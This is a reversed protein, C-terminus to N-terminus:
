APYGAPRHKRILSRTGGSSSWLIDPRRPNVHRAPALRLVDLGCPEVPLEPRAAHDRALGLAKRPARQGDRADLRGAQPDILGAEGADLHRKLVYDLRSLRAGFESLAHEDAPREAAEDADQQSTLEFSQESGRDRADGAPSLLRPLRVASTRVLMLCTASSASRM